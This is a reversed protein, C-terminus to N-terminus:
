IKRRQKYAARCSERPRGKLCASVGCIEFAQPVIELPKAWSWAAKALESESSCVGLFVGLDGRPFYVLFGFPGISGLAGFFGSEPYM